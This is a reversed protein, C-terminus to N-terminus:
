KNESFLFEVKIVAIVGILYLGTSQKIQDIKQKVETNTNM